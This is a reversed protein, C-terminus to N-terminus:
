ALAVFSVPREPEEKPGMSINNEHCDFEPEFLARQTPQVENNQLAATSLNIRCTSYEATASNGM